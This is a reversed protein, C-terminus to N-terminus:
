LLARVLIMSWHFANRLMRKPPRWRQQASLAFGTGAALGLSALWHRQYSRTLRECSAQALKRHYQLRELSARREARAQRMASM